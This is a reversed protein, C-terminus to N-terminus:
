IQAHTERKQKERDSIQARKRKQEDHLLSNGGPNLQHKLRTETENEDQEVKGEKKV